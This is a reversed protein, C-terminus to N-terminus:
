ARKVNRVAEELAAGLAANPRGNWEVFDQEILQLDEDDYITVRAEFGRDMPVVACEFNTGILRWLDIFCNDVTKTLSMKL